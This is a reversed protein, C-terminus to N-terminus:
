KRRKEDSCKRLNSLYILFREADGKSFDKYGLSNINKCWRCKYLYRGSEQPTDPPLMKIDKFQIELEAGCIKCTVRMTKKGNKIIKMKM